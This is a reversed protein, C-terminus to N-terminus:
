PNNEASGSDPEETSPPDEPPEDSPEEDTTPPEPLKMAPGIRGDQLYKRLKSGEGKKGLTRMVIEANLSGLQGFDLFFQEATSGDAWRIRAKDTTSLLAKGAEIEEENEPVYAKFFRANDSDPDGHWFEIKELNGDKDFHISGLEVIVTYSPAGKKTNEFLESRMLYYFEWDTYTRRRLAIMANEQEGQANVINLPASWSSTAAATVFSEGNFSTNSPNLGASVVIRFAIATTPAGFLKLAVQDDPDITSQIPTCSSFTSQFKEGLLEQIILLEKSYAELQFSGTHSVTGSESAVDLKNCLFQTGPIPEDSFVSLPSSFALLAVVYGLAVKSM